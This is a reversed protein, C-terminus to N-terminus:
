VGLTARLWTRSTEASRRPLDAPTTADVIRDQEVICWGAFGRGLLARVVAEVDADGRGLECFVDARVADLFSLGRRRADDLADRRLDKVHLYGIRDGYAEVARAPEGGGYAYHGTDLCLGLVAAPLAELLRAVEDPAEIYTAAHHHFYTTLGREAAMEATRRILDVFRDWAAGTLADERRVRGAVRARDPTGECALVLAGCGLGALTDAVATAKTLEEALDGLPALPHFASTLRLNRRALEAALTPPDTPLYGYPGLETGAYGTAAIEDLVRDWSWVNGGPPLEFVGWSVPASGILV